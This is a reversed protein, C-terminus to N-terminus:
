CLKFEVKSRGRGFVFYYGGFHLKHSEFRWGGQVVRSAVGCQWMSEQTLLVCFFKRLDQKWCDKGGRLSIEAELNAQDFSILTNSDFQRRLSGRPKRQVTTVGCYKLIM